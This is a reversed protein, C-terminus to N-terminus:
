KPAPPQSIALGSPPGIAHTNSGPPVPGVAHSLANAARRLPVVPGDRWPKVAQVHTPIVGEVGVPLPDTNAKLKASDAEKGLTVSGTNPDHIIVPNGLARLLRFQTLNHDTTAQLHERRLHDLALLTELVDAPPRDGDRLEEVHRRYTEVAERVNAELLTMRESAATLRRSEAVVEAAVQDQVQLWRLAAARQEAARRRVEARDALGLGEVQWFLGVDADGRGGLGGLDGDGGGAFGGGTYSLALSPVLPRLRAQRLRTLTAEVLERASELEPRHRLATVILEDLDLNPPVLPVALAAPDTPAVLIRPDLRLLGVLEASIAQFEGRERVARAQLRRQQDRARRLDTALQPAIASETELLQAVLELEDLTQNSITWHGLAQTLRVYTEAARLLADNTVAAQDAQRAATEQLAALPEFIADSFRIVSTLVNGRQPGGAPIPGQASVGATAGGGLFLSNRGVDVVEGRENQVRGDLRLFQTGFFLNPLWLTKAREARATAIQVGEAALAIELDHAGALKLVSPLDIPYVQSAGLTISRIPQPQIEAAASSPPAQSERSPRPQISGAENRPELSNSSPKVRISGLEDPTAVPEFQTEPPAEVLELLTPPESSTKESTRPTSAPNPESMVLPTPASSRTAADISRIPSPRSLDVADPPLARDGPEMMLPKATASTEPPISEVDPDHGHPPNSSHPASSALLIPPPPITESDPPVAHHPPVDTAARSPPPPSAPSSRTQAVSQVPVADQDQDKVPTPNWAPLRRAFAPPDSSELKPANIRAKWPWGGGSWAWGLGGLGLVLAVAVRRRTGLWWASRAPSGANTAVTSPRTM